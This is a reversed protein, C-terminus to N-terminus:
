RVQTQTTQKIKSIKRKVPVAAAEKSKKRNAGVLSDEFIDEEEEEDAEDIKEIKVFALNSSSGGAVEKQLEANTEKYENVVKEYAKKMRTMELAHKSRLSELERGLRDNELKLEEKADEDDDDERFFLILFLQEM